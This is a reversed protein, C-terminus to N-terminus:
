GGSMFDGKTLAVGQHRLIAYATTLHFFFSPIAFSLLFESGTFRKPVPGLPLEIVRDLGASLESPSTANLQEIALAIRQKMEAFSTADNALPAPGTSGLLRSVGLKAGETAWHVQYGLDNMDSALQAGILAAQRSGHAAAHAEAKTLISTLNSLGRVFVGVSADYVTLGSTTANEQNM